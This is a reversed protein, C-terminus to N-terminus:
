GQLDELADELSRAFMAHIELRVLCDSTDTGKPPVRSQFVRTHSAADVRLKCVLCIYHEGYLPAARDGEREQCRREVAKSVALGPGPICVKSCCLSRKCARLIMTVMSEVLCEGIKVRAPCRTRESWRVIRSKQSYFEPSRVIARDPHQLGHSGPIDEFKTERVTFAMDSGETRGLSSKVMINRSHGASSYRRKCRESESGLSKGYAKGSSSSLHKAMCWRPERSRSICTSSM